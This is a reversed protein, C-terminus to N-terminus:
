SLFYIEAALDGTQGKPIYSWNLFVLDIFHNSRKRGQKRVTQRQLRSIKTDKQSMLYQGINSLIDSDSHFYFSYKRSFFTRSRIGSKKCKNVCCQKRILSISSGWWRQCLYAPHFKRSPYSAFDLRLFIWIGM